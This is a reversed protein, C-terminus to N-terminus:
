KYAIEKRIRSLSQPKIGLYSAILYQPIRQIFHPYLRSFELYRHEADESNTKAIRYHLHALTTQLLIRFYRDWLPHTECLLEFNQRSLMLVRTPELTEISSVAPKDAFYSAADTIWYNEIAFQIANKDGKENIYYSYCSGELIFYQYNCPKGPETFFEKKDFSKEFALEGFQAYAAEPLPEGLTKGITTKLNQHSM